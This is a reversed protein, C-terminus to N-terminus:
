YKLIEWVKNGAVLNGGASDGILIVKKPLIDLFNNFICQM